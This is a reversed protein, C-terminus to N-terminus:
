PAASRSSTPPSAGGGTVPGRATVAGRRRGSLLDRHEILHAILIEAVAKVPTSGRLTRHYVVSLTLSSVPDHLVRELTALSDGHCCWLVGIGADAAIMSRATEVSDVRMVPLATDAFEEICAAFPHSRFEDTFLVLRHDRLDEARSPRGAADLYGTSGYFAFGLEFSHRMVLDSSRDRIVRVAIDAEGKALDTAGRGAHLEVHLDPHVSAVLGPFPGMIEAMSPVVALRVIGRLEARSARVSAGAATVAAEMAEAADLLARGERTFAFARGGRVILIAGAAKEAAALRRSVTSGDVGLIRAAGAVSGARGLALLVKFDGWEPETM